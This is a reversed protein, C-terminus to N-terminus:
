KKENQKYASEKSHKAYDWPCNLCGNKCCYGRKLHYERTFVLLGNANVIYDIGEVLM